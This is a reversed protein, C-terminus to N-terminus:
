YKMKIEVVVVVEVDEGVRARVSVAICCVCFRGFFLFFGMGVLCFFVLYKLRLFRFLMVVFFDFFVRFVLFFLIVM